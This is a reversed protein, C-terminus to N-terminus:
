KKITDLYEILAQYQGYTQVLGMRYKRMEVVIGAADPTKEERIEKKGAHAAAIMGSRGIGASCHVVIPAKEPDAGHLEDMKDLLHELYNLNPTGHDPWNQYHLQTITKKEGSEHELVIIREVIRQNKDYPQLETERTLSLKWGDNLEVPDEWYNHCKIVDKEIHMAAAVIVKCNNHIIADWFDKCTNHLPGQTILYTVDNYKVLDGNLYFDERGEIKVRHENHAFVDTYRNQFSRTQSFTHNAPNTKGPTSVKLIFEKRYDIPKNVVPQVVPAVQPASEGPVNNGMLVNSGPRWLANNLSLFDKADKVEMQRDNPGAGDTLNIKMNELVNTAKELKGLLRQYVEKNKTEDYEQIKEIIDNLKGGSTIYSNVEKDTWSELNKNFLLNPQVSYEIKNGLHFM